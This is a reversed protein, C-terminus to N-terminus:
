LGRAPVAGILPMTIRGSTDVAYTSNLGEQGFVVVRLKDGSDLTYPTDFDQALVLAPGQRVCGALAAATLIVALLRCFWMVCVWRASTSCGPSANIGPLTLLGESSRQDPGCNVGWCGYDHKIAASGFPRCTPQTYPKSDIM